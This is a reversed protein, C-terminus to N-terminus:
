LCQGNLVSKAPDLGQCNQGTECAKSESCQTWCRVYGAFPKCKFNPATWSKMRSEIFAIKNDARSWNMFAGVPACMQALSGGSLVGQIVDFGQTVRVIPGGSDGRCTGPHADENRLASLFTSGVQSVTVPEEPNTRLDDSPGGAMTPGWGYITLSQQIFPAVTSIRMSGEDPAALYRDAHDSFLYVLGFDRGPDSAGGWNPHTYQLGWLFKLATSAIRMVFPGAPSNVKVDVLFPRWAVDSVSGDTERLCHQATLIWNKAIFVGSCFGKVINPNIPDLQTLRVVPLNVVPTGNIIPAVRPTVDDGPVPVGVGDAPPPLPPPAIRPPPTLDIPEDDFDPHVLSYERYAKAYVRASACDTVSQLGAHRAFDPYARLRRSLIPFSHIEDFTAPNGDADVYSITGCNTYKATTEATGETPALTRSDSEGPEPGCGTSCAAAFILVFFTWLSRRTRSPNM